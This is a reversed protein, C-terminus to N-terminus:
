EAENGLLDASVYHVTKGDGLQIIYTGISNPIINMADKYKIYSLNEWLKNGNYDYAVVFPFQKSVSENIGCLVVKNDYQCLQNFWCIGGMGVNVHIVPDANDEIMKSTIYLGKLNGKTEAYEGCVVYNTSNGDICFLLTKEKSFVLEKNELNEDFKWIEGAHTLENYESDWDKWGCIYIENSTRNYYASSFLREKNRSKESSVYRTKTKNQADILAAYYSYDINDEDIFEYMGGVVLVKNDELLVLKNKSDDRFYCNDELSFQWSTEQSEFNYCAIFHKRSGSAYEVEALFVINGDTQEAFDLVTTSKANESQVYFSLGEQWNGYEDRKELIIRNNDNKDTGLVYIQGVVSTRMCPNILREDDESWIKNRTDINFPTVAKLVASTKGNEDSTVSFTYINGIELKPFKFDIAQSNVIIELYSLNNVDIDIADYVSYKPDKAEYVGVTGKNIYYDNTGAKHLMSSGNNLRIDSSTNNELIIYTSKTRCEDLKDIIIQTKGDASVVATKWGTTEQKTWYPIDINGVPILYEIYFASGTEDQSPLMKKVLKDNAPVTCTIEGNVPNVNTYINVPFESQNIFTVDVMNSNPNDGPKDVPKKDGPVFICSTFFFAVLLLNLIKRKM